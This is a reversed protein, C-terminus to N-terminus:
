DPAIEEGRPEVARTEVVHKLCAATALAVTPVQLGPLLRVALGLSGAFLPAPLFATVLRLRPADRGAVHPPTVSPSMVPSPMSEPVPTPNWRVSPPMAPAPWCCRRPRATRRM